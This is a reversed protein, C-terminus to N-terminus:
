VNTDNSVLATKRRREGAIAHRDGPAVLALMEPGQEWRELEEQSASRLLTQYEGAQTTLVSSGELVHRLATTDMLERIWAEFM